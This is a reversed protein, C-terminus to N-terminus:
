LIKVHFGHSGIQVEDSDLLPRRTSSGNGGFILVCEGADVAFHGARPALKSDVLTIELGEQSGFYNEGTVLRFDQGAYPGYQGVLWAQCVRKPKESRFAPGDPRPRLTPRYGPERRASARFVFRAAGLAIEDGDLVQASSVQQGNVFLGERAGLDRVSAAGPDIIIEAHRSSIGPHTICINSTFASGIVHSGDCIRFDEGWHQGNLGVIWGSVSQGNFGGASQTSCLAHSLGFQSKM